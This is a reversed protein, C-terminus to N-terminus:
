RKITNWEHPMQYIGVDRVRSIVRFAKCETHYDFMKGSTDHVAVDLVYDGETLQLAPISFQLTGKKITTDLEYEDIQTNTGYVRIRDNTHIAVGFIPTDSLKKRVIYDIEIVMSDVSAFLSEQSSKRNLTRVGTIEIDKSGWRLASDLTNEEVEISELEATEVIQEEAAGATERSADQEALYKLYENVVQTPPGDERIKGAQLWIARDCLREVVGHDHTVLVITKNKNKLEKIRNLCKRQFSADGVALVEDVLLVDPEVNIATAFALRMYMGSSYTRVPNHIFEELESFEIIQDVRKSIEKKSLGFISANMYINEIGTFDPHFGAGLELLSSVRGNIQIKGSAPYIIQTLLKLLTSKGSGNQGILGVMEGEKITFSVDNVIPIEKYQDKRIRLLKEKLTAPKEQYVRFSKKLNEVSIAADM